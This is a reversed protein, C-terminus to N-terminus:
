IALSGTGLCPDLSLSLVLFGSELVIFKPSLFKDLWATLLLAKAIAGLV